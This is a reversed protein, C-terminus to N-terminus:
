LLSNTASWLKEINSKEIFCKFSNMVVTCTQTNYKHSVDIYMYVIYIKVYVLIQVWSRMSIYLLKLSWFMEYSWHCLLFLKIKNHEVHFQKPFEFKLM